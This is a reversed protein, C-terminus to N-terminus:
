QQAAARLAKYQSGLKTASQVMLHLVVLWYRWKSDHRRPGKSHRGAWQLIIEEFQLGYYLREEM